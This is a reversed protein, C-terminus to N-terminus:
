MRGLKTRAVAQAKALAAGLREDRDVLVGFVALLNGLAGADDVLFCARAAHEGIATRYQRSDGNVACATAIVAFLDTVMEPASRM